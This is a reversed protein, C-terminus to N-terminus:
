CFSAKSMNGVQEDMYKRLNLVAYRMRGLATNISINKLESIEKFSLEEYIRLQIIERQDSPLKSVLKRINLEMQEKVIKEVEAQINRDLTTTVELGGQHVLSEGFKNVLENKVFM